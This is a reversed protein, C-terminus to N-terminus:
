LYWQNPFCLSIIIKSRKLFPYRARLRFFCTIILLIWSWTIKLGGSGEEIMWFIKWGVRVRQLVVPVIKWVVRVRQLVVRVIKWVVRVRQLLVRVRKWVVRVRQLVVRVRKWVVRVTELVVRVIKIIIEPGGSSKKSHNGSWRVTELVM